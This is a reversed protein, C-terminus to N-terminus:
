KIGGFVIYKKYDETGILEAVKEATKEDKFYRSSNKCRFKLSCGIKADEFDYYLYYKGISNDEWDKESFDYSYKNLINLIELARNCEAETKYVNKNNYRFIDGDDNCWCFYFADGDEDICWYREGRELKWRKDDKGFQKKFAEYSEESIEFEKNNITITKM